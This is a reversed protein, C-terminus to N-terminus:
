GFVVIRYNILNTNTVIIETFDSFNGDFVEDELLTISVGSVTFVIPLDGDNSFSVSKGTGGITHTTSTNNSIFEIVSPEVISGDISLKYGDTENGVLFKDFLKRLSIREDTKVM